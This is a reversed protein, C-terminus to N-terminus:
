NQLFTKLNKPVTQPLQCIGHKNSIIVNGEVQPSLFIQYILFDRFIIVM